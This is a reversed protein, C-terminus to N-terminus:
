KIQQQKIEGCKECSIVAFIDPSVNYYDVKAIVPESWKHNCEKKM